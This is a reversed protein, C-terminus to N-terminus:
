AQAMKIADLHAIIKDYHPTEAKAWEAVEYCAELWEPTVDSPINCINSYTCFECAYYGIDAAGVPCKIVALKEANRVVERNDDHAAEARAYMRTAMDAIDDGVIGEDEKIRVVTEAIHDRDEKSDVDIKALAAKVTINRRDSVLEGNHWPIANGIVFLAHNLVAERNPFITPYSLMSHFVFKDVNNM